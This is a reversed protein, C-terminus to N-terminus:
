WRGSPHDRPWIIPSGKHLTLDGDLDSIENEQSSPFGKSAKTEADWFDRALGYWEATSDLSVSMKLM